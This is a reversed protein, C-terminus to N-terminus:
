ESRLAEVPSAAVAKRAPLLCAMVGAAILVPIASAYTAPDWPSVGFLLGRMTWGVLAAMVVGGALGTLLLRGGERAILALVQANQAGLARRVGFERHRTAVSYAIVGYIGVSALALAVLAFLVALQMTFQRTANAGESYAALPRVDYIPLSPDLKNLAERIAPMVIGAEATSKVIWVAPNRMAQRQPFYMQERVEVVPNRHRVHEVVGVVTAEIDATGTVFVDVGVRRGLASQGPWARAALRNDVIVVPHSTPDDSETFSRGEVLRIGLLELAGPSLSRYDAQPATTPDAGKEALYPGGWNPVHDYPAHSISAAGIVGPLASLAAQLERSFVLARERSPARVALRFSQIGSDNFGPDLSQVNQFTRVLLSAGIVLVVSMAVQGTILVTRLQQRATGTRAADVRIANALRIRWVETLPAMSLLV